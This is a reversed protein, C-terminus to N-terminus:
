PSPTGNAGAPANGSPSNVVAGSNGAAAPANAGNNGPTGSSASPGSSVQVQVDGKFKVDQKQVSGLTGRLKRTNAAKEKRALKQESTLQRRQKGSFGFAVLAPNGKGFFAVLAAKLAILYQRGAPLAAKLAQRQSKATAAATDVAAYLGLLAVLADLIQSKTTPAGSVVLSSGDPFATGFGTTVQTVETRFGSKAKTGSGPIVVPTTGASPAGGSGANGSPNSGTGASGASVSGGSSLPPSGAPVVAGSPKTNSNNAM